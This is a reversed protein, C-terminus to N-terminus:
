SYIQCTQIYDNYSLTFVIVFAKLTGNVDDYKNTFSCYSNLFSNFYIFLYIIFFGMFHLSEKRKLSGM